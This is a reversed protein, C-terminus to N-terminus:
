WEDWPDEKRELEAAILRRLTAVDRRELLEGISAREMVIGSLGWYFEANEPKPGCAVSSLFVVRVPHGDWNVAEDLLGVAVRTEHGVARAPHPLAVENGLCTSALSEREWVLARFEDPVVGVREMQTILFDLVARKTPFSLHAFFLCEDFYSLTGCGCPVLSATQGSTSLGSEDFLSGILRVPVPPEFGLPVTTFIYDVQSFDMHAASVMDCTSVDGEALGFERCLRYELLRATGAGSACVILVRKRPLKTKSREIALAFALAIYGVEEESVESDYTKRLVVSADQAMSYALPFKAKIDDLLPNKQELNFKLRMSLPVVHHALNMRLEVDRRFDIRYAEWVRELMSSVTRWVEDSIVNAGDDGPRQRTALHIAIYGVESDPVEIDFAASVNRAIAHALDYSPLRRIDALDEERWPICAKARIRLVAVAIHM